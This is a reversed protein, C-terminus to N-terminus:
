AAKASRSQQYTLRKGQAGKIARMTRLLDDVGLAARNSYRFDFEKLYRHLHQEGCHQYIGRMGRKFVSFFNEVTNSHITPDDKNVYEEASHMTKGHSTFHGELPSGISTYLGSEDTMLKGGKAINERVIQKVTAVDANEVKFSRASGNREVLTVIKAKGGPGRRGKRQGPLKQKPGYYTEDIEITKDKGGMPSPDSVGMAERIRHAMFWASKYTIGLTRHLQHASIGKKSSAMLHFGLAWKSLPIHSSEMVTGTTVSFPQRCANCQYMGARHSKGQVLTAQNVTGCHSCVPGHPWRIKEFHERAKDDDSFIPDNLSTMNPEM